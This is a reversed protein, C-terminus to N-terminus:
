AEPSSEARRYLSVQILDELEKGLKEGVDRIRNVAQTNPGSARRCELQMNRLDEDPLSKYSGDDYAKEADCHTFGM